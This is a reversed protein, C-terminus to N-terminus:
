HKNNYEDIVKDIIEKSYKLLIIEAIRKNFEDVTEKPCSKSCVVKIEGGKHYM